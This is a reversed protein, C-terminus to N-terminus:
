VLVGIYDAFKNQKSLKQIFGLILKFHEKYNLFWVTFIELPWNFKKKLVLNKKRKWGELREHIFDVFATWM